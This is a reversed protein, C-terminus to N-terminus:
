ITNQKKGFRPIRVNKTFCVNKTAKKKNKALSGQQKIAQGTKVSVGRIGRAISGGLLPIKGAMEAAKDMKESAGIRRGVEGAGVKGVKIAGGKIKGKVWNEGQNFMKLAAGSGHVGFSNAAVLSGGM